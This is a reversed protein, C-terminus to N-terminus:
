RGITIGYQDMMTLERGVKKEGPESLMSSHSATSGGSSKRKKKSKSALGSQTVTNSEKSHEATVLFHCEANGSHLSIYHTPSFGILFTLHTVLSFFNAVHIECRNNLWQLCLM